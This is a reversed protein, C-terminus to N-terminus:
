AAGPFREGLLADTTTSRWVSSFARSGMLLSRRPVKHADLCISFKSLAMRPLDYRSVISQVWAPLASRFFKVEFILHKAMAYKLGQDEFLGDLSPFVTSRLNKDFTIRLSRDFRGFFAERDYVVLM